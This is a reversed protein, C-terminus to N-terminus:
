VSAWDLDPYLMRIAAIDGKSLGDRQGIDAGNKAVITPLNNKSFAKPPYHMISTYDYDGLDTGDLVHKAFNHKQNDAVNELRVEVFKDRDSRSQEHWLGLAHGIEHIAAGLGCGTGLSIVQKGGQRGVYSWCGNREEFSLYDRQKTRAVFRFPTHREWHQIAAAARQKLADTTAFPIIQKWRFREGVIGIGRSQEDTAKRVKKVPGLMIDGELLANQDVVSYTAIKNIIGQNKRYMTIIVEDTEDGGRFMGAPLDLRSDPEQTAM